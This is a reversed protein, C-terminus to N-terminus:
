VTRQAAIYILITNGIRVQDYNQLQHAETIERGNVYTGNRSLDDKILSRGDRHVLIAHSGSVTEDELVIDCIPNAGLRNYGAYVRFDEGDPNRTYSVLWGVIKGRNTRPQMGPDDMVITRREGDLGASIPESTGPRLPSSPTGPLPVSSPTSAPIPAPAPIPTPGPIVPSSLAEFPSPISDYGGAGNPPTLLTESSPSHIPLSPEELISEIPRGSEVISEYSPITPIAETQNLTSSSAAVASPPILPAEVTEFMTEPPAIRTVFERSGSSAPGIVTNPVDLTTVPEEIRTM